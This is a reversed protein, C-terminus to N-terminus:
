LSIAFRLLSGYSYSFENTSSARDVLWKTKRPMLGHGMMPQEWEVADRITAFLRDVESPPVGTRSAPLFGAYCRSQDDKVPYTFGSTAPLKDKLLVM